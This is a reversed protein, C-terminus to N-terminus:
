MLTSNTIVTGTDALSCGYVFVHLRCVKFRGQLLDNSYQCSNRTTATIIGIWLVTLLCSLNKQARTRGGFKEEKRGNCVALDHPNENEQTYVLMENIVPTYFDKSVHHGHICRKVVYTLTKCPIKAEMDVAGSPCCACM